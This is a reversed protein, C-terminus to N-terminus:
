GGAGDSGLDRVLRAPVGAVLTAPAVDGTVVAGAAVVAHAGIRCPGLLIAGSGVWAGEEVVIDRGERPVAAQRELGRRTIDHTGTLVSRRPRLVRRGRDHDRGVDHEAARRQRDREGRHPPSRARRLDHPETLTAARGREYGAQAAREEVGPLVAALRADVIREVLTRLRARVRQVATVAGDARVCRERGSPYGRPHQWFGRLRRSQREADVEGAVEVRRDAHPLRRAVDRGRQLPGADRDRPDPQGAAARRARLVARGVWGAVCGIVSTQALGSAIVPARSSSPAPAKSPRWTM